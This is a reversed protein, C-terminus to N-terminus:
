TIKEAYALLWRNALQVIHQIVNEPLNLNLLASQDQIINRCAVMFKEHNPFGADEKGLENRPVGLFDALEFATMLEETQKHKVMRTIRDLIIQKEKTSTTKKLQEIEDCLKNM